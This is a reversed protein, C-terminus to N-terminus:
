KQREITYSLLDGLSDRYTSAPFEALIQRAEQAFEHMKATAYTLGGTSKVFAIVERVKKGLAGAGHQRLHADRGRGRLLQEADLPREDFGAELPGTIPPRNWDKGYGLHWKGIAATRYGHQKALGAITLRDPELLPREWLGVIGAKLRTRWHYRGTLLTYRSPSCVGSSSHGDTFRMGEAALRDLHPTPIRGRDPNYCQVDGYGLDDAYIVVLNPREAATAAAAALGALLALSRAANPGPM